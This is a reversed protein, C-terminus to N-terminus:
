GAFETVKKDLRQYAHRLAAVETDTVDQRKAFGDIHDMLDSKVEQLEDRVDQIDKKTAMDLKILIVQDEVKDLRNEVGGLRNEVGGMRENFESKTVSNDRLFQVIELIDQLTQEQNM